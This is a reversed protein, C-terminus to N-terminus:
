RGNIRKELNHAFRKEISEKLDILIKVAVRVYGIIDETRCIDETEEWNVSAALPNNTDMLIAGYFGRRGIKYLSADDSYIELTKLENFDINNELMKDLLQAIFDQAIKEEKIM